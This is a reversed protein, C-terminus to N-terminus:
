IYAETYKYSFVHKQQSVSTKLGCFPKPKFISFDVFYFDPFLFFSQPVLGFSQVTGGV